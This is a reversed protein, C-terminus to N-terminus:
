VGLIASISVGFFNFVPVDAFLLGRGIASSRLDSSGWGQSKEMPQVGMLRGHAM